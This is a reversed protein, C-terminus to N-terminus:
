RASVDEVTADFTARLAQVNPDADITSEAQRQREAQEASRQETPTQLGAGAEVRVEVRVAQGLHEALATQLNDVHRRQALKEFQPAIVLGLVRGDYAALASNRALERALGVLALEDVTVAWDLPVVAAPALPAASTTSVDEAAAEALPEATVPEAVVPAAPPATSARPVPAAPPAAAPTGTTLPATRPAAPAGAPVAPPTAPRFALMRLLVMEFGSEPEPAYQLDRRGNLAIQYFLQCEDAAVRAALELVRPDSEVEGAAEGLAHVVAIRRLLSLMEALVQAYDPAYDALERACGILARGDGGALTDVLGLVRGQDITGLMQAVEATVIRGDGHAIAQDLLSLADRVSGGAAQAVLELAATEHEVGEAGLVRALHEALQAVSLRTLNFQLCRSLITVPLKKPDTTALLFKVHPPPEELTKLLANFSHNSFMHVEDILYVKYRARTPAYPVNDLLERTEDVKTRSAADVEILDVCRGSDIEQCSSCEGCPQSSVGRECNLAKAFVRALTTKGVGRTGTFLYAHHLRDRDLANILARLVHGQGIVEGFSRPRWKRALVQYSM